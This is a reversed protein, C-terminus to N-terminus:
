LKHKTDASSLQVVLKGFQGGKAITQWLKELESLDDLGEVVQSVIPKIKHQRIFAVMEFFHKRSGMTTGVLQINRGVAKMSYDMHPAVTMGYCAITGNNRLLKVGARVVDGGAGDIIADLLPREKPLLNLLQTEWGQQTYLVGSVAGLKRARQLKEVKSSTVFVRCGAAVAFQLAFLAVGGGIGTILINRGPLANNSRTMVARWATLGAAPIAAIEADTLHEPANCIEAEDVNIYEQLTGTGAPSAGMTLYGEPAEPAEPDDVWGTGPNITVRRGKWQRSAQDGVDVVVGVGDSGLAMGFQPKPYLDQRLFHDRHNLAAALMKIQV